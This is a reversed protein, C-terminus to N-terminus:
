FCVHKPLSFLEVYLWSMGILTLTLFVRFSLSSSRGAFYWCICCLSAIVGGVLRTILYSVECINHYSGCDLTYLFRLHLFGLHPDEILLYFYTGGMIIGGLLSIWAFLKWRTRKGMYGTKVPCSLLETVAVVPLWGLFMYYCVSKWALLVIYYALLEAFRVGNCEYYGLFMLFTLSQFEERYNSHSYFLSIGPLFLLSFVMLTIRITRHQREKHLFWGFVSLAVPVILVACSLLVTGFVARSSV